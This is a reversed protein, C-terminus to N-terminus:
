PGSSNICFNIYFFLLVITSLKEHLAPIVFIFNLIQSLIIFLVVSTPFGFFFM